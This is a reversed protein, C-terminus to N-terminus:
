ESQLIRRLTTRDIGLSKAAKIQNNGSEQLAAEVRERKFHAVQEHLSFVEEHESSRVAGTRGVQAERGNRFLSLDEVLIESRGAFAARAAGGHLVAELERINGPWAYEKLRLLAEQSIEHFGVEESEQLKRLYREALLPIDGRRERLAPIHIREHAIRHFFDSRIVGDRVLQEIDGNTAAILRLDVVVEEDAGLRRCRKEQLVGLLATQTEQPLADIEDLFFTGGDARRLLGDRAAEAGTFAGREHGFLESALVDARSLGPQYRVFNGESRHSMRHILRACLSKGVGTEGELLVPQATSAAFHLQERLRSMPESNGILEMQLQRAAEGQTFVELEALLHYQKQGERVLASLHPIDAPKVLFNTAGLKIARVGFETDGHGTLVIIRLHSDIAQLKQLLEFGSEVGHSPDLCLDIVAVQPSIKTCERVADEANTAVVIHVNEITRALVQALTTVADRDDDVLLIAGM